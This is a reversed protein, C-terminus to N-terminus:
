PTYNEIGQQIQNALIKQPNECNHEYSINTQTKKDQLTKTQSEYKPLAPRM